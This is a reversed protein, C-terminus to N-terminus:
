KLEGDEIEFFEKLTEIKSFNGHEDYGKEQTSKETESKLEKIKEIAKQKIDPLEKLIARVQNYKRERLFNLINIIQTDTISKM